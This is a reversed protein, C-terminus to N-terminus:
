HCNGFREPVNNGRATTFTIVILNGFASIAKICSAFTTLHTTNTMVHGLTLNMFEGM